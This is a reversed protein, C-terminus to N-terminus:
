CRRKLSTGSRTTTLNVTKVTEQGASAKESNGTGGGFFSDFDAGLLSSDEGDLGVVGDFNRGSFVFAFCYNRVRL